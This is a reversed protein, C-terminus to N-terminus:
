RLKPKGYLAHILGRIYGPAFLRGLTEYAPRENTEGYMTPVHDPRMPGDFGVEKYAAICAPLDNQGADHFAEEFDTADGVIDRFHVFAIADRAGFERIVSPLDDTMLAFNGQCLTIGNSRSPYLDLLRRYNEISNMVRPMGRMERLPPDDPHMGLRVNAAEAEPIVADLFYKLADWLQEQSYQGPEAIRSMEETDSLKFGTVLAGGRSVIDTRTRAWSSVAMWNYCLTTIGLAGMARIQEIVHAIQEDRGALGLRILDMPATDEIGIMEIGHSAFIAKDRSIGELSWPVIGDTFGATLKGDGVSAFMRQEQEAGQLLSVTNAVGCQKVLEWLPAPRASLQESLHIM